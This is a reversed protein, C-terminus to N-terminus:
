IIYDNGNPLNCGGQITFHCDHFPKKSRIFFDCYIFGLIKHDSLDRVCLKIVSPHWLDEDITDIIELQINFISNLILDIGEMCNGLSFYPNANKINESFKRIKQSQTYYPIDWQMLEVNPDLSDKRKLQLMYAFDQDSKNRIMNNVNNILEWVIEPTEAISGSIARHAFSQFGCTKSLKLRSYILELLLQEQHDEHLLFQRFSFERLQIDRSENHLGTIFVKNNNVQFHGLLAPPVENKSIIRPQSTGQMFSSGVHLIHENLHVVKKRLDEDLHIGSQEFDFLFLKSVYDDTDTTSIIDGNNITQLLCNYLSRNTNLEEVEASIAISSQEAAHAYNKDPHGIRVFESLDAVKCLCNSLEDFIQVMKRTRSPSTAEQILKDADVIANQRIVHFGNANTLLQNGFLGKHEPSKFKSLKNQQTLSNVQNSLSNYNSIYRRNLCLYPRFKIFM